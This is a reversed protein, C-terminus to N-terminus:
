WYRESTDIFEEYILQEGKMEVNATQKTPLGLHDIGWYSLAKHPSVEKLYRVVKQKDLPRNPYWCGILKEKLIRVSNSLQFRVLHQAFIGIINTHTGKEIHHPRVVYAISEERLEFLGGKDWSYVRFIGNDIQHDEYPRHADLWESLM